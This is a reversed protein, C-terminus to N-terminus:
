QIGARMAAQSRRRTSILSYEFLVEHSSGWVADHFEPEPFLSLSGSFTPAATPPTFTEQVPPEAVVVPPLEPAPVSLRVAPSWAALAVLLAVALVSVTTAGTGVSERAISAGDEIHYIRHEL